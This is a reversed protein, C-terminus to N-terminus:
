ANKDTIKVWTGSPAKRWSASGDAATAMAGVKADTLNVIDSESDVLYNEIESYNFIQTYAM